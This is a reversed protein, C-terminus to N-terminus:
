LHDMPNLNLNVQQFKVHADGGYTISTVVHTPTYEGLKKQDKAIACYPSFINNHNKFEYKKHPLKITHIWEKGM